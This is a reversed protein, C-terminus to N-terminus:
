VEKSTLSINLKCQDKIQFSLSHIETDVIKLLEEQNFEDKKKILFDSFIEAICVGMAALAIKISVDKACERIKRCTEMIKEYDKDVVM